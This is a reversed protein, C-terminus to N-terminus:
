RPAVLTKAAMDGLRQNRDSSWVAIAAVLYFLFGDIIRLVTRLLSAGWSIQEGALTTVRLGLVLKGVTAGLLKELVVYYALVILFFLGAPAGCVSRVEDNVNFSVSLAGDCAGDQGAIQFFVVMVVALVIADIITALARRGVGSGKREIGDTIDSM